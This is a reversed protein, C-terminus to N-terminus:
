RHHIVAFDQVTGSKPMSARGNTSNKAHATPSFVGSFKLLKISRPVTQLRVLLNLQLNIHKLNQTKTKFKSNPIQFKMPQHTIFIRPFEGHTIGVYFYNKDDRMLVNYKPRYKKILESEKILAEIDSSLESWELRTAEQRLSEVKQGANKRFYSALRKRLNEAKGVYIATKGRRFIYVGPTNSAKKPLKSISM